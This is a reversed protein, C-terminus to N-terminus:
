PSTVPPRWRVAAGCRCRLTAAPRGGEARLAVLRQTGLLIRRDCAPCHPAFM